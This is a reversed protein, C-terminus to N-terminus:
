RERVTCLGLDLSKIPNWLGCALNLAGYICSGSILVQSWFYRDSRLPILLLIGLVVSILVLTESM